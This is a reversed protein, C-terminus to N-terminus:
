IFEQCWLYENAWLTNRSEATFIQPTETSGNLILVRVVIVGLVSASM